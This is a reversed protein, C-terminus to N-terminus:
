EIDVIEESKNVLDKIWIKGNKLEDEGIIACYRFGRKDAIKLHSKLSKVEYNISVESDVRKRNAVKLLTPLASSILAGFYYNEYEIKPLEIMDLVREVGIAFGIAPTDRGDLLKVLNDYRGGGAIANQAGLDDSIFEFATKTYYDLGRVLNKNVRYEISCFDLLKLINKFDSSCSECLNENLKPGDKLLDQCSSNKCDFVRIPNLEKRRICDDCLGDLSNLYDVLKSRFPVICISCGLSNIELLYKINFRDLISKLMIIINVDELYSSTGFSEVGFQHFQRFRGKQPREYRFMPGHYYFRHITNIRDLKNEIFSRVVGATGEPRLCIDNGGKDIFQYMEKGVIDSSDGVGRKFLTSNEVIPTEILGFGFKEVIQSSEKIFYLYKESEKPLIDRMGRLAKLM